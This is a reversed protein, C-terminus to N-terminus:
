QTDNESLKHETGDDTAYKARRFQETLNYAHQKIRVFEEPPAQRRKPFVIPYMSLNAAMAIMDEKYQPFASLIDEKKSEGTATIHNLIDESVEHLQEHDEAYSKADPNPLVKSDRWQIYNLKRNCDCEPVYLVTSKKRERKVM